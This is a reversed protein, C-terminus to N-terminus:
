STPKADTPKMDSRRSILKSRFRLHTRLTNAALMTTRADGVHPVLFFFVNVFQGPFLSTNSFDFSFFIM